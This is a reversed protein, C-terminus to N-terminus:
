LGVGGAQPQRRSQGPLELLVPVQQPVATDGADGVVPGALCRVSPQLSSQACWM